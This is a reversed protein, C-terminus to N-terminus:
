YLKALLREAAKVDATDLGEGFREFVPQLLARADSMRGDGVWLTALDTATRLEWARAGMKRSHELSRMFCTQADDALAPPMSLLLNARIRLLEPMYCLDGNKEVLGITRNIRTMGEEFEGIAALGKVISIELMTTFVEYTAAHLNEICRRLTEIGLKVDGPSNRGRRRVRQRCLRVAVSFATWRAFDAM